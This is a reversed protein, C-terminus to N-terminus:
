VVSLLEFLNVIARMNYRNQEFDCSNRSDTKMEKDKLLLYDYTKLSLRCIEPRQIESVEQIGEDTQFRLFVYDTVTNKTEFWVMANKNEALLDM